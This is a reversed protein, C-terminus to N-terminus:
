VSPDPIPLEDCGCPDGLGVLLHLESGVCGEGIPGVTVHSLVSTRLPKRRGPLHPVCCSVARQITLMDVHQIRAAAALEECTPGCDEDEGLPMCRMLVVALDAVITKPECADLGNAQTPFTTSPYLRTVTVRLLGGACEDTGGDCSTIAITGPVKCSDCPCGPQGELAEAVQTLSACMCELVHDVIEDLALPNPAM